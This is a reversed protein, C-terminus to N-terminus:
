KGHRQKRYVPVGNQWPERVLEGSELQKIQKGLRRALSDPKKNEIKLFGEGHDVLWQVLLTPASKPKPHAASFADCLFLLWSEVEKLKKKKPAGRRRKAVANFVSTAEARGFKASISDFLRKALRTAETINEPEPWDDAPV